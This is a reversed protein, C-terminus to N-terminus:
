GSHFHRFLNDIIKIGLAAKLLEQMVAVMHLGAIDRKLHVALLQTQQLDLPRHKIDHLTHRTHRRRRILILPQNSVRTTM